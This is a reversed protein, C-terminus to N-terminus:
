KSQKTLPRSNVLHVLEMRNSVGMKEYISQIHKKVTNRSIYLEEAIEPNNYGEYM